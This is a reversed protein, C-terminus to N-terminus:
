LPLGRVALSWQKQYVTSGVIAYDFVLPDWGRSEIFRKSTKAGLLIANENALTGQWRIFPTSYYGRYPVYAKTLM